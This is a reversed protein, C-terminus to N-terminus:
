CYGAEKLLRVLVPWPVIGLWKEPSDEGIGRGLYVVVPLEGDVPYKAAQRAFAAPDFRDATKVEFKVSPTNELDAGPRGNPTKGALTFGTRARLDDAVWGAARNGKARSM